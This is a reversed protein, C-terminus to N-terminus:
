SDMQKPWELKVDDVIKRVEDDSLLDSCEGISGLFPSNAPERAGCVFFEHSCQAFVKNLLDEDLEPCDGRTGVLIRDSGVPLFIQKVDDNKDNLPKFRRAPGAGQPSVYLKSVTSRESPKM